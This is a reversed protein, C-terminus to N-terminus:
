SEKKPSEDDKPDRNMCMRLLHSATAALISSIALIAGAAANSWIAIPVSAMIAIIAVGFLKWQAHSALEFIRMEVTHRHRQESEAMTVIRNVLDPSLDKYAALVSPPPLPGEFFENRVVSLERKQTTQPTPAPPGATAPLVSQSHNDLRRSQKARKGSTM